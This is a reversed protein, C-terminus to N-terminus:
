SDKKDSSGGSVAPKAPAKALQYVYFFAMGLALARSAWVADDQGDEAYAQGDHGM